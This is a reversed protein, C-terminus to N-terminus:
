GSRSPRRSEVWIKGGHAHVIGRTIPLGLGMGGGGFATKSSSHYNTNGIIYFREFVEELETDAIGIGTDQVIIIIGNDQDFNARTVDKIKEKLTADSSLNYGKVM